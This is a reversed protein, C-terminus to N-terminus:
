PPRARTAPGARHVATLAAPPSPCSEVTPSSAVASRAAMRCTRAAVGRGKPTFKGSPRPSTVGRSSAASSSPSATMASVAPLGAGHIRRMPPAALVSTRIAPGSSARLASPAPASITAVTPKSPPPWIPRDSSVVSTITRRTTRATDM